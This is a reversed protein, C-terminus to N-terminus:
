TASRIVVANCGRRPLAQDHTIGIRISRACRRTGNKPLKAYRRWWDRDLSYDLRSLDDKLIRGEIFVKRPHSVNLVSNADDTHIRKVVRVSLSERCGVLESM